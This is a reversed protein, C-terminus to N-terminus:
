LLPQRAMPLLELEKKNLLYDLRRDLKEAKALLMPVTVISFAFLALIIIAIFIGAVVLVSSVTANGSTCVKGPACQCVLRPGFTTTNSWTRVENDDSCRSQPSVYRQYKSLADLVDFIPHPVLAADPDDESAQLLAACDVAETSVNGPDYALLPLTLYPAATFKFRSDLPDIAAYDASLLHTQTTLLTDWEALSLVATAKSGLEDRCDLQLDCAGAVLAVADARSSCITPVPPAAFVGLAWLFFLLLSFRM